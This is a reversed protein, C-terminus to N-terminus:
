KNNKTWISFQSDKPIAASISGSYELNKLSFHEKEINVIEQIERLFWPDISTLDFIKELSWGCRFADAIYFLREPGAFTLEFGLKENIVEIDDLIKELGCRDDEMSCIAKQLSEQFNSGISM